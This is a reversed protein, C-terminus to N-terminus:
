RVEENAKKNPPLRTFIYKKNTYTRSILIDYEMRNLNIKTKKKYLFFSGLLFILLFLKDSLM